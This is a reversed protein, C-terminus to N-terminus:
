KIKKIKIIDKVDVEITYNGKIYYTPVEVTLTTDKVNVIKGQLWYGKGFKVKCISTEYGKGFIKKLENVM